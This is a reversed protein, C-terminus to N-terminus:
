ESFRQANGMHPWVYAQVNALIQRVHNRDHHIWENLLDGVRLYGVDPHHGGRSLDAESLGEVLRVSDQRVTALEGLLKRVDQECDRRAAAVAEQDWGELQPDQGALITRIRGAFGRAESEVLHGLVAKVCWERPAPHWALTTPSLVALEAALTTVTARLLPAVEPPTLRSPADSM